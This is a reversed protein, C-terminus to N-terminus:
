SLPKPLLSPTQTNSRQAPCLSIRLKGVYLSIPIMHVSYSLLGRCIMAVSSLQLSAPSSNQHNNWGSFIAETEETAM